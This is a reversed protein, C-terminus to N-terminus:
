EVSTNDQTLLPRSDPQDEACFTRGVAQSLFSFYVFRKVSARHDLHSFTSCISLYISQSLVIRIISTNVKPTWVKRIVHHKKLSLPRQSENTRWLLPRFCRCPCCM